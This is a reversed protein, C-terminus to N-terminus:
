ALELIKAIKSNYQEHIKKYLARPNEAFEHVQSYRKM